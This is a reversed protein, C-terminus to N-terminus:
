LDQLLNNHSHNHLDGQHDGDDIQDQADQAQAEHCVEQGARDDTSEQCSAGDDDTEGLDAHANSTEAGCEFLTKQILQWFLCSCPEQKAECIGSDVPVIILYGLQTSTPM